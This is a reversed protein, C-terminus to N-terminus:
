NRPRHTDVHHTDFPRGLAPPVRGVGRIARRCGRPLRTDPSLRTRELLTVSAPLRRGSFWVQTVFLRHRHCCRNRGSGWTSARFQDDIGDQASVLARLRAPRAENMEFPDGGTTIHQLHFEASQRIVPTAAAMDRRRIQPAAIALREFAERDKLLFVKVAESFGCLFDRDPLSRLLEGDNVVGWPVAFSGLWNKKQFLNVGNKVGVGSDGQGLTTTPLRVLRLGRHAIAVAFGVTDLVAGGGIVIVYSRRDLNAVNFIKLMRELIHIDNKIEEGGPVVQVNGVRQIRNTYNDCFDRIQQHLEPRAESVNADLWFQVRAPRDGTPELLDALVQQDPGFVNETFRLRHVFPVAFSADIQAADMDAPPKRSSMRRIIM